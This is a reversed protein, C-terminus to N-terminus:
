GYGGERLDEETGYLLQPHCNYAEELLGSAIEAAGKHDEVQKKLADIKRRLNSITETQNVIVDILRQDPM